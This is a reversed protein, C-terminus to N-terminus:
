RHLAVAALAGVFLAQLAGRLALNM